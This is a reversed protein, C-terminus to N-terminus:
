IGQLASDLAGLYISFVRFILFIIFMAVLLYVTWGLGTTLTKLSLRAEEEFQPSLHDLMEPVTGSAEASHVMQLFEETFLGTAALSDGLSEGAEMMSWVKPFAAIYAGNATAKFSSELSPEISMGSQQTVAFAWSFRAIAFSQLCKGLVPVRLLFPDLFQQGVLSHRTWKYLAFLGGFFFVNTMIWGMASLGGPLIQIADGGRSQAIWDLIFILFAIVLIAMVLQIVPLRIQQIFTRRMRVMNDYHGALRKLVEALTGTQEGVQVMDIMLPPFAGGQQKMGTNMEDGNDVAEYVGRMAEECRRDATKQSATTLAKKIGVGSSLLISLSRCLRALSESRIRRSFLSFNALPESNGRFKPTYKSLATELADPAQPPFRQESLVIISLVGWKAQRFQPFDL